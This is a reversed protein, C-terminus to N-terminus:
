YTIAILVGKVDAIRIKWKDKVMNNDGKTIFYQGKDDIEKKVVRHTIGDGEFGPPKYWIVDGINIDDENMPVIYIDFSEYFMSPFMSRGTSRARIITHNSNNITIKYFNEGTDVREVHYNNSVIDNPQKLNDAILLGSSVGLVLLLAYEVIFFIFSLNLRRKFRKDTRTRSKKYDDRFINDLDM